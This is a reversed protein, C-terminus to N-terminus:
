RCEGLYPNGNRRANTQDRGCTGGQDESEIPRLRFLRPGRGRKSWPESTRLIGSGKWNSENRQRRGGALWCRSSLFRLRSTPWFTCTRTRMGGSEGTEREEKPYSATLKLTMDAARIKDAWTPPDAPTEDLTEKIARVADEAGLNVKETLRKIAARINPKALNESSMSRATNYDATEYAEQAAKTANGNNEAYAAVFRRQRHTLKENGM